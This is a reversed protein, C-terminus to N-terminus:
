WMWYGPVLVHTASPRPLMREARLRPPASIVVIEVPARRHGPPISKDLHGPPVGGKDAVGPPACDPSNGKGQGKAPNASVPPAFPALLTAAVLAVALNRSSQVRLHSLPYLNM